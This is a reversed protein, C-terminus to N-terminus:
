GCMVLGSVVKYLAQKCCPWWGLTKLAVFTTMIGFGFLRSRLSILKYRSIDSNDQRLLPSFRTMALLIAYVARLFLM